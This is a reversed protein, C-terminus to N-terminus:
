LSVSEEKLNKIMAFLGLLIMGIEPIIVSLGIMPFHRVNFEYYRETKRLHDTGDTEEKSNSFDPGPFVIFAPM